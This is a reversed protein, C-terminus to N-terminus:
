FSAKSMAKANKERRWNLLFDGVIGFPLFCEMLARRHSGWFAMGTEMIGNFVGDRGWHWHQEFAHYDLVSIDRCLSVVLVLGVFFVPPPLFLGPGEKRM